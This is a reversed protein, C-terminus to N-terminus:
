LSTRASAAADRTELTSRHSLFVLVVILGRTLRLHLEGRHGGQEGIGVVHLVIGVQEHLGQPLSGRPVVRARPAVRRQEQPVEGQVVGVRAHLHARLLEGARTLHRQPVSVHHVARRGRREHALRAAPGLRPREDGGRAPEDLPQAVQEVVAVDGLAGLAREVVCGGRAFLLATVRAGRAGPAGVPVRVGGGRAGGGRLRKALQRARALQAARRRRRGLFTLRRAHPQVNQHARRGDRWIGRLAGGLRGVRPAGPGRAQLGQM